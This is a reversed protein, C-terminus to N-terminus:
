TTDLCEEVNKVAPPLLIECVYMAAVPLVTLFLAEEATTALPNASFLTKRGTSFLAFLLIPAASDSFGGGM